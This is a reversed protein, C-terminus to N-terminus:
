LTTSALTSIYTPFPSRTSPPRQCLHPLLPTLEMRPSRDVCVYQCHIEPITTAHIISGLYTLPSTSTQKGYRQKEM